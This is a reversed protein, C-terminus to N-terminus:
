SCNWPSALPTIPLTRLKPCKRPIAERVPRLRIEVWSWWLIWLTLATPITPHCGTRPLFNRAFFQGGFYNECRGFYNELWLLLKRMWWFLKEDCFFLKRVWWCKPWKKTVHYLSVSVGGNYIYRWSELLFASSSTSGSQAGFTSPASLSLLHNHHQLSSIMLHSPLPVLKRLCHTNHINALDSSTYQSTFITNRLYM